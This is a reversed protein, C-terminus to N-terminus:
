ADNRRLCLDHDGDQYVRLAEEGDQTRTVDFNKVELYETLLMGLNPDDEALLIKIKDMKLYQYNYLLNSGKGLESVVYTAKSGWCIKSM